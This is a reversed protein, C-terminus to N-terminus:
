LEGRMLKDYDFRNGLAARIGIQEDGWGQVVNNLLIVHRPVTAKDKAFDIGKATPLWHAAKVETVLGWHALKGIERNATVFRPAPEKAICIGALGAGHKEYWRVLWCLSAAMGSNLVRRYRQVHGGCCPCTTGEDVKKMMLDFAEELSPGKGLVERDVSEVFESSVKEKWAQIMKEFDEIAKLHEADPVFVREFDSMTMGVRLRDDKLVVPKSEEVLEDFTRQRERKKPPDPVPAQPTSALFEFPIQRKDM